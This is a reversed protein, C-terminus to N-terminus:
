NNSILHLSPFRGEHYQKYLATRGVGLRTAWGLISDTIGEKTILIVTTTNLGQDKANAWRCNSKCYNKDNNIRDISLGDPKEGMDKLFNPFSNFWRKCVTIGRGGYNKYRPNNPNICRQKMSVWANYEPTRKGVRSSGHTAQARAVEKQRCGCSTTNGQKLSEGWCM